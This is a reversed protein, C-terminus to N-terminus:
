KVEGQGERVHEDHMTQAKAEAAERALRRRAANTFIRIWTDQVEKPYASLPPSQQGTGCEVVM